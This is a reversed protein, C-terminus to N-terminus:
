RSMWSAVRVSIEPTEKSLRRVSTARAKACVVISTMLAIAGSNLIDMMRGAFTAAMAQDLPVHERCGEAEANAM